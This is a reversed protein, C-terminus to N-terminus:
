QPGGDGVIGLWACRNHELVSCPREVDGLCRHEETTRLVGDPCRTLAAVERVLTIMEVGVADGARGDQCGGHAPASSTRSLPSTAGLDLISHYGVVAGLLLTGISAFLSWVYSARGYGLAHQEDAPLRASRAAAVVFCENGVDVWSHVAETRM